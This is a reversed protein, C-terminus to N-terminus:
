HSSVGSCEVIYDPVSSKSRLLMKTIFLEKLLFREELLSITKIIQQSSNFKFIAFSFFLEVLSIVIPEGFFICFFM